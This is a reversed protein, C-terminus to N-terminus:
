PLLSNDQKINSLVTVPDFEGGLGETEEEEVRLGKNALLIQPKNM